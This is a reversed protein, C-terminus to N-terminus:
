YRGYTDSTSGEREGNVAILKVSQGKQGTIYTLQIKGHWHFRYSYMLGKIVVNRDSMAM